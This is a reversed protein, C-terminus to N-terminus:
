IRGLLYGIFVGIVGALMEGLAIIVGIYFRRQDDMKHQMDQTTQFRTHEDRLKAL